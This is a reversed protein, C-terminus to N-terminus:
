LFYGKDEASYNDDHTAVLIAHRLKHEDWKTYGRFARHKNFERDRVVKRLGAADLVDLRNFDQVYSRAEAIRRLLWRPPSNTLDCYTRTTYEPFNLGSLASQHGTVRIDFARGFRSLYFSYRFPTFGPVAVQMDMDRDYQTRKDPLITRVNKETDDVYGFFRHCQETYSLKM